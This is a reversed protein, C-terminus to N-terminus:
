IAGLDTWGFESPQWVNLGGQFNNEWLKGLHTVKYPLDTSPDIYPYKGDGGTPQTWVEIGGAGIIVRSWLAPANEPYFSTDGTAPTHPTILFFLALEFTGEFPLVRTVKFNSDVTLYDFNEDWPPYVEKVEFAQAEDTILQFVGMIQNEKETEKIEVRRVEVESEFIAQLESQTFDIVEFYAIDNIEDYQLQGRRQNELIQPEQIDRWGDTIHEEVPLTNYLATLPRSYWKVPISSYQRLPSENINTKM